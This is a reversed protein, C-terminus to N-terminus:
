KNSEREEKLIQQIEEYTLGDSRMEDLLRRAKLKKDASEALDRKMLKLQEESPYKFVLKPFQKKAAELEKMCLVAGEGVGLLHVWGKARTMATFLMNRRRVDPTRMVADVELVYVMFAENGKAKHVTALTVRGKQSFDRIGYADEHLNNCHIGAKLLATEDNRPDAKANRDDVVVVLIDEPQLGNKLDAVISATVAEVEAAPSDFIGGMVIENLTFHPAIVKM